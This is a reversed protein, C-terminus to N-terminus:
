RTGEPKIPWIASRTTLQDSRRFAIAESLSGLAIVAVCLALLVFDARAAMFYLNVVTYGTDLCSLLCHANKHTFEGSGTTEHGSGVWLHLPVTDQTQYDQAWGSFILPFIRRTVNRVIRSVREFKWMSVTCKKIMAIPFHSSYYLHM